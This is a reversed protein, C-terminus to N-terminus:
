GKFLFYRQIREINFVPRQNLINFNKEFGADFHEEVAGRHLVKRKLKNFQHGHSHSQNMVIKILIASPLPHQSNKALHKGLRRNKSQKIILPQGAAGKDIPLDM